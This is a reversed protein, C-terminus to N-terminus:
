ALISVMAREIEYKEVHALHWHGRDTADWRLEEALQRGLERREEGQGVDKAPGATRSRGMLDRLDHRLILVSMVDHERQVAAMVQDEVDGSEAGDRRDGDPIM